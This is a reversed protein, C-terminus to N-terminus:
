FRSIITERWSGSWLFMVLLWRAIICARTPKSYRLFLPHFNGIWAWEWIAVSIALLWTASICARAPKIKLVSLNRNWTPEWAVFSMVSLWTAFICARAPNIYILFPLNRNWTLEWLVLSMGLLWTAFVCARAPNIDILFLSILKVDEGALNLGCAVGEWSRVGCYEVARYVYPSAITYQHFLCHDNGLGSGSDRYLMHLWTAAIAVQASSRM